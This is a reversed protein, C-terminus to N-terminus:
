LEMKFFREGAALQSERNNGSPSDLLIQSNDGLGPLHTAACHEVTCAHASAAFDGM